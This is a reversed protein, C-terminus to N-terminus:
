VTEGWMDGEVGIVNKDTVGTVLSGPNWNYASDVDCGKPCAWNQGLSAPVSSNATVVYKQDLYTHNASAMVVKMGKAVAERGTETGPDNGAAPQWYEAVSGAPPTTGPGAIDAWGMVTKGRKTVIPAETNIFQA